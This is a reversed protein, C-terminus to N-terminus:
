IIFIYKFFVKKLDVIMMMKKSSSSLQTDNYRLWSETGCAAAAASVSNMM